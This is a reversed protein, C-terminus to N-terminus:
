FSSKKVSHISFIEFENLSNIFMQKKLNAM